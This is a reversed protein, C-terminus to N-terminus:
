PQPLFSELAWVEDVSKGVQFALHRGDPSLAFGDDSPVMAGATWTTTDIDLKRPAGGTVPVLWLERRLPAFSGDTARGSDKEVILARGDSTWVTRGLAEGAGARLLARPEGGRLPVLLLESTGTPPQQRVTVYEGDPAISGINRKAAGALAPRIERESGSAFDREVILSDRIIYGKTDDASWEGPVLNQGAALRTMEGSQADIRFAGSRGELDTGSALVARGDRSWRINGAYSITRVTKVEGTAVSRIAICV